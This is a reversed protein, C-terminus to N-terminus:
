GDSRSRAVLACRETRAQGAQSEGYRVPDIRGEAGAQVGYPTQIRVQETELKVERRM